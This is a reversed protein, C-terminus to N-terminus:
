KSVMCYGAANMAAPDMENQHRSMAHRRIIVTARTMCATTSFMKQCSVRSACSEIAPTAQGHQNHFGPRYAARMQAMGFRAAPLPTQTKFPLAEDTPVM